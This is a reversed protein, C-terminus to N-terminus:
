PLIEVCPGVQMGLAMGKPNFSLTIRLVKTCILTRVQWVSLFVAAVWLLLTRLM